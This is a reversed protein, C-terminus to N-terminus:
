TSLQSCLEGNEMNQDLNDSIGILSPKSYPRPCVLSVPLRLKRSSKHAQTSCMNTFPAAYMSSVAVCSASLSLFEVELCRLM